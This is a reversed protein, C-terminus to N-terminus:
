PAVALTGRMSPHFLCYFRFSGPKALILKASQGPNLRLDFSRDRATVSHMVTDRNVWLITDGVKLDKPSAAYAMNSMVLTFERGSQQDTSQAFAPPLTIMAVAALLVILDRWYARLRTRITM